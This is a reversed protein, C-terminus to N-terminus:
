VKPRDIGGCLWGQIGRWYKGSDCKRLM